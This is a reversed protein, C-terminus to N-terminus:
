IVLDSLIFSLSSNRAEWQNGKAISLCSQSALSILKLCAKTLLKSLRLLVLVMNSTKLGAGLTLKLGIGERQYKKYKMLSAM